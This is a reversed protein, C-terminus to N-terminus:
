HSPNNQWAEHLASGELDLADLPVLEGEKVDALLRKNAALYFPAAGNAV